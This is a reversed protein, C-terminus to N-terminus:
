DSKELDKRFLKLPHQLNSGTNKMLDQEKSANL